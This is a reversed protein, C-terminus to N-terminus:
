PICTRHQFQHMSLNPHMRSADQLFRGHPLRDRSDEEPSRSRKSHASILFSIIQHRNRTTNPLSTPMSDDNTKELGKWWWPKGLGRNFQAVTSLPCPFPLKAIKSALMKAPLNHKLRLYYVPTQKSFMLSSLQQKKRARLVPHLSWALVLVCLRDCLKIDLNM